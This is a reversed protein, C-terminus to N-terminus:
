NSKLKLTAISISAFIIHLSCLIIKNMFSSQKLKHLYKDFIGCDNQEGQEEKTLTIETMM